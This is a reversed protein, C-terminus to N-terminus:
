CPNGKQWLIDINRTQKYVFSIASVQTLGRRNKSGKMMKTKSKLMFKLHLKSKFKLVMLRKWKLQLIENPKRGILSFNNPRKSSAM